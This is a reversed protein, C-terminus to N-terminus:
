NVTFTVSTNWNSSSNQYTVGWTYKGPDYITVNDYYVENNAQNATQRANGMQFSPSNNSTEILNDSFLFETNVDNVTCILSITSGQTFTTGPNNVQFTNLDIGSGVECAVLPTPASGSSSHRVGLVLSALMPMGVFFFALLGALLVFKGKGKKGTPQKPPPPISPSLPTPPPGFKQIAGGGVTTQRAVQPFVTGPRAASVTQPAQPQYTDPLM